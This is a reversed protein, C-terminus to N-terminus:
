GEYAERHSADAPLRKGIGFLHSFRGGFTEGEPKNVKAKRRLAPTGTRLVSKTRRKPKANMTVLIRTPSCWRDVHEIDCAAVELQGDASAAGREQTM